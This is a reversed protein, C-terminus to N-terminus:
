RIFKNLCKFILSLIIDKVLKVPITCVVVLLQPANASAAWKFVKAEGFLGDISIQKLVAFRAVPYLTAPGATEFAPPAPCKRLTNVLNCAVAAQYEQHPLLRGTGPGTDSM